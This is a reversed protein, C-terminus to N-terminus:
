ETPGGALAETLSYVSDTYAKAIVDTIAVLNETWDKIGDNILECTKSVKKNECDEKSCLTEVAAMASKKASASGAVNVVAKSIHMLEFLSTALEEIDNVSINEAYHRDKNVTKDFNILKGGYSMNKWMDKFTSVERKTKYPKYEDGLESEDFAMGYASLFNAMGLGYCEAIQGSYKAKLFRKDGLSLKKGKDDAIAKALSKVFGENFDTGTASIGYKKGIAIIAKMDKETAQKVKKATQVVLDYFAKLSEKVSQNALAAGGEPTTPLGADAAEQVIMFEGKPLESIKYAADFIASSVNIKGVAEQIYVDHMSADGTAMDLMLESLKM